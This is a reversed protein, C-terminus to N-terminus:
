RSRSHRKGQCSSVRTGAPKEVVVLPNAGVPWLEGLIALLIDRDPLQEGVLSAEGPQVLWYIARGYRVAVGECVHDGALLGGPLRPCPMAVVANAEAPVLPLQDTTDVRLSPADAPEELFLDSLWQPRLEVDPHWGLHGSRSYRVDLCEVGQLHEQMQVGHRRSHDHRQHVWARERAPGQVLHLEAGWCVEVLRLDPCELDRRATAHAQHPPDRFGVAGESGPTLFETDTMLRHLGKRSWGHRRRQSSAIHDQMRVRPNRQAVHFWERGEVEPRTLLSEAGRAETAREAVGVGVHPHTDGVSRVPEAEVHPVVRALLCQSIGEDSAEFCLALQTVDSFWMLAFKPSNEKWASRHISAPSCSTVDWSHCSYARQGIRTVETCPMMFNDLSSSCIAVFPVTPATAPSHLNGTLDM